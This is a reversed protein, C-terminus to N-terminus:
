KPSYKEARVVSGSDLELIVKLIKLETQSNNKSEIHVKRPEEFFKVSDVRYMHTQGPVEEGLNRRAFEM